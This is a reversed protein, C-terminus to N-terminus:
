KDLFSPPTRHLSCQRRQTWRVCGHLAFTFMMCSLTPGLPLELASFVSHSAVGLCLSVIGALDVTKKRSDVGFLLADGLLIAVLPAFIAGILMLFNKYIESDIFLAVVAGVAAVVIVGIKEPLVPYVNRVTMITSYVDLFTTCVTSLAVVCLALAGFGIALMMAVPESTGTVFNGMFGISYMWVSGIGYGLCPAWFATRANKARCAYDAVLPTWSLPMVLSLDFATGFLMPTTGQAPEPLMGGTKRILTWTVLFALGGLLSVAIMNGWRSGQTEWFAWLAVLCGVGLVAATNVHELGWLKGAIGSVAHGSLRLMVATWGLLQMANALSLLWSGKIGFSIRTCMIAPTKERFGVLGMCGLLLAGLAHGGVIAWIGAHVGADTVLGGAEMEAVSVSAGFWLVFLPIFRYVPQSM